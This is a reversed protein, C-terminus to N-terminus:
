PTGPATSQVLSRDRAQTLANSLKDNAQRMAELSTRAYITTTRLDTHGLMDRIIALDTGATLHMSAFFRRLAHTSVGKLDARKVAAYLARQANRPEMMNGNRTGFVFEGRLGVNDILQRLALPLVLTRSARDTKLPACGLVGTLRNRQVQRELTILEGQIDTWKIGLVESIRLGLLLQTSFLARYFPDEIKAMLQVTEDPTLVRRCPSPVRRALTRQAPNTDLYGLRVAHNLCGILFRRIHNISQPSLPKSRDVIMKRGTGDKVWRREFQRLGSLLLECQAITLKRLPAYSLPELHRVFGQYLAFTNPRLKPRYITEMAKDIWQGVTLDEVEQVGSCIKERFASLASRAEDETEFRAKWVCPKCLEDKYPFKAAWRAGDQYVSGQGKEGRKSSSHDSITTDKNNM